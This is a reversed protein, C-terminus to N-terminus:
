WHLLGDAGLQYVHGPAYRVGPAYDPGSSWVASECRGNPCSSETQGFDWPRLTRPQSQERLLVRRPIPLPRRESAERLRESPQRSEVKCPECAKAPFKGSRAPGELTPRDNARDCKRGCNGCDRFIVGDGVCGTDNCDPCPGDPAPNPTPGPVDSDMTAAALEVVVIAAASETDVAEDVCGAFSALLVAIILLRVV